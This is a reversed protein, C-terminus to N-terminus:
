NQMLFFSTGHRHFDFDRKKIKTKKTHKNTRQHSIVGASLPYCDRTADTKKGLGTSSGPEPFDNKQRKKRIARIQSPLREM